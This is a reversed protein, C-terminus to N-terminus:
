KIKWATYVSRYRCDWTDLIVGDICVSFHGLMKLIYTGEKFLETFDNGKIRPKGKPVTIIIRNYEELYKYLFDKTKYSDFGWNRKKQNLDKRIVNYDIDLATSVARVVCDTTKLGKPHRNYIKFNM